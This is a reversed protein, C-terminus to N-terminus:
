VHGRGYSCSWGWNWKHATFKRSSVMEDQSRCNQVNRLDSKNGTLKFANLEYIKIARESDYFKTRVRRWLGCIRPYKRLKETEHRDLDRLWHLWGPFCHKRMCTFFKEPKVDSERIWSSISTDIESPGAKMPRWECELRCRFSMLFVKVDTRLVSNIALQIRLLCKAPMDPLSFGAPPYRVCLV